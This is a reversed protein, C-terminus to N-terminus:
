GGKITFSGFSDTGSSAPETQSLPVPPQMPMGGSLVQM